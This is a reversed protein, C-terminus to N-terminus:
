DDQFHALLQRGGQFIDPPLEIDSESSSSSDSDYYVGLGPLIGIVQATTPRSEDVTETMETKDETGNSDLSM